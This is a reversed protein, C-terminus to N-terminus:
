VRSSRKEVIRTAEVGGIVDKGELFSRERRGFCYDDEDPTSRVNVSGGEKFKEGPDWQRQIYAGADTNV